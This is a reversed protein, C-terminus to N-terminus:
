FINRYMDPAEDVDDNHGFYDKEEDEQEMASGANELEDDPVDLDGGSGSRRGSEENLPDGDFDTDDLYQDDGILEDVGGDQDLDPDGLLLLDEDTVDAEPDLIESEEIEIKDSSIIASTPRFPIRRRKKQASSDQSENTPNPGKQNQM